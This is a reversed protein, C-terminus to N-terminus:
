EGKIKKILWDWLLYPYTAITLWLMGMTSQGSEEGTGDILVCNYWEIQEQEYSTLRSHAKHMAEDRNRAEVVISKDLGILDCRYSPM